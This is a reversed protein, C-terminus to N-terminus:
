RRQSDWVRGAISEIAMGQETQIWVLQGGATVAYARPVWILNLRKALAGNPDAVIPLPFHFTRVFKDVNAQTDRSVIVLSADARREAAYKWELLDNHVCSSCSGILLLITPIKDRAATKLAKKMAWDEDPIAITGLRPDNDILAALRRAAQARFVPAKLEEIKSYFWPDQPMVYLLLALLSLAVVSLYPLRSEGATPDPRQGSQSDNMRSSANERM